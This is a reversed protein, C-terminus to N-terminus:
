AEVTENCFAILWDLDGGCVDVDGPKPVGPVQVTSSWQWFTFGVWPKPVVAVKNYDALCFPYAALQPPNGIENIYPGYSYIVPRKKTSSQVYALWVLGWALEHAPTGHHVEWDLMAPLDGPGYDPAILALTELFKKASQTPDDNLRAFHYPGVILGNAKATKWNFACKSDVLTEGETVKIYVFVRGSAKVAPWDIDGSGEYVDLGQVGPPLPPAVPVEVPLGLAAWTIPGVIGDALLSHATQFAQVANQTDMGFIGDATIGLAKQIEVVDSGQAGYKIPQM